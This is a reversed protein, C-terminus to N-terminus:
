IGKMQYFANKVWIGFSEKAFLTKAVSGGPYHIYFRLYRYVWPTKQKFTTKGVGAFSIGYGLLTM